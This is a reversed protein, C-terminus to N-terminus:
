HKCARFKLYLTLFLFFCYLVLHLSVLERDSLPLVVYYDIYNLIDVIVIYHLFMRHYSCFKFAYSSVYLFLLPLLSMGGLISPLLIDINFYSLTTNLVYIFALLMPLIRLLGIESRYLIKSRLNGEVAM